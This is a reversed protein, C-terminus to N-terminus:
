WASEYIRLIDQETLNRPNNAVHHAYRKVVTKAFEPFDEQRAGVDRLRLPIGLDAMLQRVANVSAMAADRTSLAGVNEGMESAIAAYKALNSSLNYEMVYPMMISIALGHTLHYKMAPPYCTAHVAGIGSSRIAMTGMCVGFCMAYRADLHHTGKTYAKRLNKSIVEIGKLSLLDSLPNAKITVFSELAHSLADMGSEATIRPPLGLTLTPDIISIDSFAYPSYSTVKDNKRDDTLVFTHSLESGTGATTPVFIKPLGPKSVKNIGLYEDIGAEYPAMCSVIKATDISSGGGIGFIVDAGQKRALDLCREVMAFPPDPVVEDFVVVEFGSKTLSAVADNTLGAGRVGKDTIMLVKKRGPFMTTAEEGIKKVAGNGFIIKRPLQFMFLDSMQFSDNM